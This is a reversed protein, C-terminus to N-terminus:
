LIRKLDKKFEDYAKSISGGRLCEMNYAVIYLKRKDFFELELPKDLLEQNYTPSSPVIIIAPPKLDIEYQNGSDQYGWIRSYVYLQRAIYPSLQIKGTKDRDKKLLEVYKADLIIVQNGRRLIYDPYQNKLSVKDPKQSFLEKKNEQDKNTTLEYGHESAYRSLVSAIYLEFLRNMDVFFGSIERTKGEGSAPMFLLKALEFPRKFRENLRTFHVREFHERTLHIPAVDDFVLMLEGLLKKNTSWTTRRMAERICAYFIRNLLNDELLEHVEVSFIHLQHPLKRIQKSLLLKGRLFKEESHLEVYERHYGRQIENWLSKAFLYVFVEYLNPRLKRSKLYALDYERINLGYARDLMRVFAM